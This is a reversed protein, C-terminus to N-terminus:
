DQHSSNLRTSKRDSPHFNGQGICPRHRGLPCRLYGHAIRERPVPTPAIDRHQCSREIREQAQSRRLNGQHNDKLPSRQRLSELELRPGSHNKGLSLVRYRQKGSTRLQEERQNRGLVASPKDFVKPREINKKDM